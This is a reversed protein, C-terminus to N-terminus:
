TSGEVVNSRTRALGRHAQAALTLLEDVLQEAPQGSQLDAAANRMTSLRCPTDVLEFIEDHLRQPTLDDQPIIRAAGANALVEANRRQEDAGPLPVLIAPLGLAALEAVTGAGSRGVVLTTAAYIHALEDGVREVPLYRRQISQPLTAHQARLREFDGNGENPGCQHIIEIRMLLQPLIQAVTQNLAQAGQAGGTVYILPREFELPFRRRAQERDGEFLAQRVPNGTVVIRANRGTRPTETGAYSLAVVDCVRANIKTALGLTATQEHTLTPIGLLRGAAVTPVSVFGGTSFIVDPRHRRLITVAQMAGLPIRLTDAATMLSFYRRLKGTRIAVYRIGHEQAADAEFGTKSGIWLADLTVGRRRLAQIVAVAPSIHGGTGGGAIALRLRSPATETTSQDIL